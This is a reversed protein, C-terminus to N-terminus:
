GVVIQRMRVARVQGDCGIEVSKYVRQPDIGIVARRPPFRESGLPTIADASGEPLRYSVTITFAVQADEGRGVEELRYDSGQFLNKVHDIATTIAEHVEM